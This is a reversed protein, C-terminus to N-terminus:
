LGLGFQRNLRQRPLSRRGAGGRRRCVVLASIHDRSSRTGSQEPTRGDAVSVRTPSVLTGITEIAMSVAVSATM